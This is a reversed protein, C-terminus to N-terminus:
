EAEWRTNWAEPDDLTASGSLKAHFSELIAGLGGRIENPKLRM